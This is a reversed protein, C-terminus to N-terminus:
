TGKGAVRGRRYIEMAIRVFRFIRSIGFNMFTFTCSWNVCKLQANADLKEAQARVRFETTRARSSLGRAKYKNAKVRKPVRHLAGKELRALKEDFNKETQNQM